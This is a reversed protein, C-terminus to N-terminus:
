FVEEGEDTETPVSIDIGNSPSTEEQPVYVFTGKDFDIVYQLKKNSASFRSKVLDITMIGDKQELFIVITSDQGIRDSQSILATNLGGETSSRNQQSVTLIPIKKIAQLLKLDKSINSARDVPNRAKRDDELLSHQDVCLVDINFKEIFARLKSVGVDGGVMDPTLIYLHGKYREHLSDLYEKYENQIDLNGHTLKMNSLHSLLSDARYGVMDASMEGSYMGVNLGQEVAALATKLLVYSKGVGNRAVITVLDEQRDWGGIITDLEKFGTKIYYKMYDKSKDIYTDYRSNDQIIDISQITPDANLKETSHMYYTLAEDTKNDLLLQRITNFTEAIYRKNRDETLKALLFNSSENVEIIDFNPYEAIFSEIDPVNSYTNIHDLIFQYEKEYDSFFSKDLNNVTIFQSDKARLIYNLAQLQIM